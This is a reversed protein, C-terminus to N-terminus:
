STATFLLPSTTAQPSRKAVEMFMDAQLGTFSIQEFQGVMLGGMVPGVEKQGLLEPVDSEPGAPYEEYVQDFPAVVCLMLTVVAPVKESVTLSPLAHVPADETVTVMLAAGVGVMVPGVVM